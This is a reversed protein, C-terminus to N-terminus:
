NRAFSYIVNARVTFLGLLFVLPKLELQGTKSSLASDKATRRPFMRRIFFVFDCPWGGAVERVRDGIESFSALARSSSLEEERVGM